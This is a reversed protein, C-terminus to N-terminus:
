NGGAETENGKVKGNTVIGPWKSKPRQADTGYEPPNWLVVSGQRLSEQVKIIRQNESGRFRLKLSKQEEIFKGDVLVDLYSLFEETEEWEKVMRGLVDKEFDYGTFCWITKEPYTEKIRQFLPLLGQQNIHEMPEGGLITIGAIEKRRMYALVRGITAESFEEGYRFDWAEENFCNKCHHTCGSVFLSVRIGPGNAVDVRKIDAYNM